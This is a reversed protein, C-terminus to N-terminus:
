RNWNVPTMIKGAARFVKHEHKLVLAACAMGLLSGALVDFPYHVGVYVRSIAMAVAMLAVLWAPSFQKRMLVFWAAFANAAHESPFSFSGPPWVMLEVGPITLFPRPRQFTHKVCEGAVFSVGVAVLMLVAAKKMEPKGVTILALALIIWILGAEGSYSLLPMFLDLVSNHITQNFWNFCELEQNYFFSIKNEYM